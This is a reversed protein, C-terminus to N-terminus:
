SKEAAAVNKKFLLLQRDFPGKPNQNTIGRLVM